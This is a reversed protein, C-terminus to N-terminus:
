PYCNALLSTYREEMIRITFMDDYIQLFEARSITVDSAPGKEFRYLECPPTTFNVVESGTYGGSHPHQELISQIQSQICSTHLQKTPFKVPIAPITTYPKSLLPIPRFLFRTLVSM